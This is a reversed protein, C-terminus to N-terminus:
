VGVIGTKVTKHNPPWLSAVSPSAQDCVPPQNTPPEALIFIQTVVQNKLCNNQEDLEVVGNNADACGWLYYTGEILDAPLTVQVSGVASSASPELSVIQREGIFTDTAPDIVEDDSLYYRTISPGAAINGINKTTGKINVQRVEGSKTKILPPFFDEIVLDPGGSWTVEVPDSSYLIEDIRVKAALRDTGEVNAGSFNIAIQGNADTSGFVPFVPFGLIELYPGSLMELYMGEFGGGVGAMPQGDSTLTATFTHVAGITREAEVPALDLVIAPLPTYSVTDPLNDKLYKANFYLLSYAEKTRQASSSNDLLTMFEGLKVKALSPDNASMAQVAENHKLSFSSALTTDTLWGLNVSETIYGAILDFMAPMNFFGNSTAPPATPGITKAFFSAKDRMAKIELRPIALEVSPPEIKPEIRFERIGPLGHSTMQLGTLSEGPSLLSGGWGASGNKNLRSFWNDPSYMGVPVMDPVKPDALFRAASRKLFSPGNVLGDSSLEMGNRPQKIDVRFRKIEGTNSLASQLSYSFTYIDGDLTVESNVVTDSADPLEGGWYTEGYVSVPLLLFAILLISKKNM